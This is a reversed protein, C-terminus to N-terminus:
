TLGAKAKLVARLAFYAPKPRLNDDFPTPDAIPSYFPYSPTTEIWSVADGIGYVTFSACVGSKLAADLMDEYIRAQVALRQDQTGTVNRLNVDFETVYVPVGYSQMTAIVDTKGPPNAGDLHMQLGVGDLLGKGQLRRVIEHTVATWAGAATENDYSNYLLTAAPDAERATQYALDVYGPGLVQQLLDSHWSALPMFENVVTWEGVRGRYHAVVGNIHGVLIQELVDATWTGQLLWDPYAQYWLLHMGRVRQNASQIEAVERDPHVYAPPNDFIVHGQSPEIYRWDVDPVVGLNFERRETSLMGPVEPHLYAVGIRLGIADALERLAYDLGGKGLWSWPSTGGIYEARGVPTGGADLALVRGDPAQSVRAYAPVISAPPAP